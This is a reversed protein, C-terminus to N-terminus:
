SYDLSMNMDTLAFVIGGAGFGFGYLCSCGYVKLSEVREISPKSNNKLADFLKEKSILQHVIPLHIVFKYGDCDNDPVFGWKLSDCTLMRVGVLTM